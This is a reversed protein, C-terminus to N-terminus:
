SEMLLFKRLKTLGSFIIFSYMNYSVIVFTKCLQISAGWKCSAIIFIRLFIIPNKNKKTEGQSKVSTSSSCNSSNERAIETYCCCPCDDGRCSTRNDKSQSNTGWNGSTWSIWWSGRGSLAQNRWSGSISLVLIISLVNFCAGLFYLFLLTPSPPPLIFICGWRPTLFMFALKPLLEFVFGVYTMPPLSDLHYNLWWLVSEISKASIRFNM